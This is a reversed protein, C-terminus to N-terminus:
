TKKKHIFSGQKKTLIFEGMYHFLMSETIRMVIWKVGNYVTVLNGIDNIQILKNLKMYKM